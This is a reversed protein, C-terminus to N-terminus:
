WLEVIWEVANEKELGLRLISRLIGYCWAKKDEFGEACSATHNLISLLDEAASREDSPGTPDSIYYRSDRLVSHQM